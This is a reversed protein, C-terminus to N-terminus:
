PKKGFAKGILAGIRDLLELPPVGNRYAAVAIAMFTMALLLVAVGLYDAWGWEVITAAKTIEIKAQALIFIM